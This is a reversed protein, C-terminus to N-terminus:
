IIEVPKIVITQGWSVPNHAYYYGENHRRLKTDKNLFHEKIYMDAIEKAKKLTKTICIDTYHYDDADRWTDAANYYTYIKYAKSM